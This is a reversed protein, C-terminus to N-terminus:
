RKRIEEKFNYFTGLNGNIRLWNLFAPFIRDAKLRAAEMRKEVEVPDTIGEPIEAIITAIEERLIM